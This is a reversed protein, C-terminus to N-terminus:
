AVRADGLLSYVWAATDPKLATTKVFAPSAKRLREHVQVVDGEFGYLTLFRWPPAMQGPRQDPDLEFRQGWLFGEIAMIEDLHHNEYWANFEAERGPEANTFVVFLHPATNTFAVHSEQTTPSDPFPSTAQPVSPGM